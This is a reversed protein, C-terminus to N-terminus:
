PVDVRTVAVGEASLAAEMDAALEADTVVRAVDRSPLLAVAGQRGFKASESLVIVQRARARLLRVTEARMVDRGAFGGAATFGDVGVFLKDVFFTAATAATIPGVLVQSESQYNGGLLIVNSRPLRRVYGAIFASNTVIVIGRDQACLQEALLACVSGSEIMVTEGDAVLAAAAEAIRRKAAHHVALRARMDDVSGAVAFGHERRLLGRTALDDLDKRVTVQSVGVLQALEGVEMRERDM